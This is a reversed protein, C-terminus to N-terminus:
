DCVTKIELCYNNEACFKVIEKAERSIEIDMALEYNFDRLVENYDIDDERDEEDPITYVVHEWLDDWMNWLTKVKDKELLRINESGIFICGWDWPNWLKKLKNSSEYREQIGQIGKRGTEISYCPAGEVEELVVYEEKTNSLIRKGEMEKWPKKTQFKYTTTKYPIFSIQGYGM